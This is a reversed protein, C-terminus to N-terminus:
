PKIILPRLATNMYGAHVWTPTFSLDELTNIKRLRGELILTKIHYWLLRVKGNVPELDDAWGMKHISYFSGDPDNPPRLGRSDLGRSIRNIYIGSRHEIYWSARIYDIDWLIDEDLRLWANEEGIDNIIQPHVLERITYYKTRYGNKHM